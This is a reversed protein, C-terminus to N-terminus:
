ELRLSTGVFVLRTHWHAVIVFDIDISPPRRCQVVSSASLGIAGGQLFSDQDPLPQRRLLLYSRGDLHDATRDISYLLNLPEMVSRLWRSAGGSGAARSRRLGYGRVSAFYPGGERCLGSQTM